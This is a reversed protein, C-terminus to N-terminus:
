NKQIDPIYELIDGPQCNLLICLQNITEVSVANKRINQIKSEGM